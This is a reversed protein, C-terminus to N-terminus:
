VEEDADVDVPEIPLGLLTGRNSVSVTPNSPVAPLEVAVETMVPEPLKITVKVCRGEMSFGSEDFRERLNDFDEHALVNGEFDVYMYVDAEIM